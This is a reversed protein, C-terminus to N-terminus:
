LRLLYFVVTVDFRRRSLKSCLEEGLESVEDMQLPMNHTGPVRLM